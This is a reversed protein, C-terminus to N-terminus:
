SRIESPFNVSFFLFVLLVELVFAGRECGKIRDLGLSQTFGEQLLQEVQPLECIEIHQRRAELAAANLNKKM